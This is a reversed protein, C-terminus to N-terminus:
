KPFFSASLSRSPALPGTPCLAWRGGEGAGERFSPSAPREERPLVTTGTVRGLAGASGSGACPLPHGRDGQSPPGKGAASTKHDGSHRRTPILTLSGVHVSPRIGPGPCLPSPAALSGAGQCRGQLERGPGRGAMQDVHINAELTNALSGRNPCIWFLLLKVWAPGLPHPPALLPWPARHLCLSAVASPQPSVSSCVGQSLLLRSPLTSPPTLFTPPPFGSPTPPLGGPPCLGPATTEAACGQARPGGPTRPQVGGQPAAGSGERGQTAPSGAWGRSPVWLNPKSDECGTGPLM